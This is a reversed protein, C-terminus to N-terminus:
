IGRASLGLMDALSSLPGCAKSTPASFDFTLPRRLKPSGPSADENWHFTSSISKPRPSPGTWRVMLMKLEPCCVSSLAPVRAITSLAGAKKGAEDLRGQTARHVPM